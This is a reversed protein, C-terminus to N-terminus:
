KDNINKGGNMKKSIFFIAAALAVVASIVAMIVWWQRQNDESEGGSDNSRPSLLSTEFSQVHTKENGMEDEYYFTVKGQTTGYSSEGSLEEAVLEMSGTMSTGPEIDGIFATGSPRLGDAELLARVNYLTGRGLNMAQTELEVSEGVRIQEPLRIPSIEIQTKQRASIKVTGQATYTEGKSDSYEIAVDINYQGYPANAKVRFPFTLHCTKSSRLQQIYYSDRKGLLEINEGPAIKVLINKVTKSKSTNLLTLDAITKEGCLVNKKSFKYSDILVKPALNSDNGASRHPAAKKKIRTDTTTVYVTFDQNIENGSKDEACVSLTVPYTGGSHQKQLALRFAVLYCSVARKTNKVKHRALSFTKEYNKYIFPLNEAEGLRLSVTMKNKALPRKALLPLVINVDRKTVDPVYGASYSKKMGKYANKNEITLVSTNSVDSIETTDGTISSDSTTKDNQEQQMACSTNVNAALCALLCFVTIIIKNRM